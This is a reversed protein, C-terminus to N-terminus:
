GRRQCLGTQCFTASHPVDTLRVTDANIKNAHTTTATSGNRLYRNPFPAYPVPVGKPKTLNSVDM